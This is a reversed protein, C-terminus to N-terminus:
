LMSQNFNRLPLTFFVKKVRDFDARNEALQNKTWTEKFALSSQQGRGREETSHCASQLSWGCFQSVLVNNPFAIQLSEYFVGISVPIESCGSKLFPIKVFVNKIM